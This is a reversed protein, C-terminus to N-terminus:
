EDSNFFCSYCILLQSFYKLVGLQKSVLVTTKPTVQDPHHNSTITLHMKMVRHNQKKGIDEKEGKGRRWEEDVEGRTRKIRM